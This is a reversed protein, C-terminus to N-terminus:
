AKDSAPASSAVAKEVAAKTVTAGTAAKVIEGVLGTAADEVSGLAEDRSAALRKEAEALQKDLKAELEAEQAAIADNAAQRADQAIALAKARAEALATEYNELAKEAEDRMQSAQALDDEIRQRREALIGGLKPLAFASLIVYLGIFTIALWVLQPAFFDPNLQPM